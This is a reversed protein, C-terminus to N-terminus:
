QGQSNLTERYSQMLEDDSVQDLSEKPMGADLLLQRLSAADLNKLIETQDAPVTGASNADSNLAADVNDYQDLLNNLVEGGEAPTGAAAEADVNSGSFCTRGQPCNPDAGAKIEQNDKLGDSDSDELYPSTKHFYLEDYDSLGDGDTDKNKLALDNATQDDTQSLETTGSTYSNLPAYISNKLQFFWLIVTLVGFVALSFVAVKQNKTLKNKPQNPQLDDNDGGQDFQSDNPM